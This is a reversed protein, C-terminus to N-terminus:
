SVSLYALPVAFRHHTWPPWGLAWAILTRNLFDVGMSFIANILYLSSRRQLPFSAPANFYPM